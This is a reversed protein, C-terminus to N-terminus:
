SALSTFFSEIKGINVKIDHARAYVEAGKKYRARVEPDSYIATLADYWEQHSRCTLRADPTPYPARYPGVDSAIIPYGCAGYELLKINSKAHNFPVDALPAIAVDAKMDALKVPYNEFGCFPVVEVRAALPAPVGKPEKGFFVTKVDIHSEMFQWLAHAVVELDGFHSPSGAWLVRFEPKGHPETKPWDGLPIFNPIVEIRRARDGYREALNQTTVTVADALNLMETVKAQEEPRKYLEYCAHWPELADFADDIEFVIKKGMAKLGKAFALTSESHSIQIVVIDYDLAERAVANSSVHAVVKAGNNLNLAPLLCRYFLSAKALAAFYLVRIANPHFIDETIFQHAFNMASIVASSSPSKPTPGLKLKVRKAAKAALDFDSEHMEIQEGEFAILIGAKSRSCAAGLWLKAAIEPLILPKSSEPLPEVRPPVPKLM